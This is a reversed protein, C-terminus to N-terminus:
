PIQALLSNLEPEIDRTFVNVWGEAMTEMAYTFAKYSIIDKKYVTQSKNVQRWAKWILRMGVATNEKEMKEKKQKTKIEIKKNSSDEAHYFSNFLKLQLPQTM